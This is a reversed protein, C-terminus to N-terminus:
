VRVIPDLLATLRRSVRAPLPLSRTRDSRAAEDGLFTTEKREDLGCGQGAMGRCLGLSVTLRRCSRSEYNAYLTVSLAKM